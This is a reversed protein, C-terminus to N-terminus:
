EPPLGAFEISPYGKIGSSNFYSKFHFKYLENNADRVLYTYGPRVKYEASNSAEDVTVSKWDHGIYDQTSFFNNQIASSSCAM